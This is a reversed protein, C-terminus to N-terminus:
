TILLSFKYKGAHNDATIGPTTVMNNMSSIIIIIKSLAMGVCFIVVAQKTSITTHAIKFKMITITSPLLKRVKKRGIVMDASIIAAITRVEQCVLMSKMTMMITAPQARVTTFM